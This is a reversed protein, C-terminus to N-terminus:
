SIGDVITDMLTTRYLVLLMEILEPDQLHYYRERGRQEVSLIGARELRKLHYSLTAHTFSFSGLIEHPTAEGKEMMFIVIGRPIERRLFSMTKREERTFRDRVFYRANSTSSDKVLVEGKVLANLHFDLQGIALDLDRSIQRFHVGPNMRVYETIRKRLPLDLLDTMGQEELRPLFDGNRYGLFTGPDLAGM